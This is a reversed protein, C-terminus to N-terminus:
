SSKARKSVTEGSNMKDADANWVAVLIDESDAELYCKSDDNSSAPGSLTLVFLVAATWCIAQKVIYHSIRM